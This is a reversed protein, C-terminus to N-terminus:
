ASVVDAAVAIGFPARQDSGVRALTRRNGKATYSVLATSGNVKLTLDQADVAFIESATAPAALILAAAAVM